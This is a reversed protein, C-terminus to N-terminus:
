DIVGGAATLGETHLQGDAGLGGAPPPLTGGRSLTLPRPGRSLRGSSGAKFPLGGGGQLCGKQGGVGVRCKGIAMTEVCWAM